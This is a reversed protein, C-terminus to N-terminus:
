TLTGNINVCYGVITEGLTDATNQIHENAAMATGNLYFNEGTDPEIDVQFEDGIVFMVNGNIHAAPMTFVHDAGSSKYNSIVTNTTEAVTLVSPTATDTLDAVALSKFLAGVVKAGPIGDDSLGTMSTIDNNAGDSAANAVKALPIGDNDLGTM